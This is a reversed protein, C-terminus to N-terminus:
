DGIIEIMKREGFTEQAYNLYDINKPDWGLISSGVIDIAIPDYSALIVEKPPTCPTGSLHCHKQGIKGDIVSLDPKRYRNIDVIAKDVDYKHVHSKKYSWFGGYYEEPLLGIMNKLSLTTKTISHDKLVPVSILYGDLIAKPLKIKKYIYAKSDNLTVIAERDIDFLELGYEKALRGYGLRNFARITDCGGSGEAIIIKAKSYKQCYRIIAEVCFVDTTVPPPSDLVLNPKIIIKEQNIVIDKFNIKDLAKWVSNLYDIYKIKAVKFKM